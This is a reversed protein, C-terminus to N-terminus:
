VLCLERGIMFAADAMSEYLITISDSQSFENLYIRLVRYSLQNTYKYVMIPFGVKDALETLLFLMESTALCSLSLIEGKITYTRHAINVETIGQNNISNLIECLPKSPVDKGMSYLKNAVFEYDTPAIMYKPLVKGVEKFQM